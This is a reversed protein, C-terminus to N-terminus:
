GVLEGVLIVILINEHTKKFEGVGFQNHKVHKVTPYFKRFINQDYKVSDTLILRTRSM